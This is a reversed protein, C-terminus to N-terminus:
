KTREIQKLHHIDHGAIQNAVWDVTLTGYEPHTFTRGRQAPTLGRFMALNFRRLATYAELATRADSQGDLPIWDDQAFAQAAYGPQSLAFRVRTTLALETQALHILVQRISWKGPAYSREFQADTWNQVAARIQEPTDALAELAHRTGLDTAYPNPTTTMRM